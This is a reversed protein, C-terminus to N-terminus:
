SSLRVPISGTSRVEAVATAAGLRPLKALHLHEGDEFAENGVTEGLNRKSPTGKCTRAQWRGVCTLGAGRLVTRARRAQHRGFM